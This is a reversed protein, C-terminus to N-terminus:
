DHEIDCIAKKEKGNTSEKHEENMLQYYKRKRMRRTKEQLATHYSIETDEIYLDCQNNVREM